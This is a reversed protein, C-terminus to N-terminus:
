ILESPQSEIWHHDSLPLFIVGKNDEEEVEKIIKRERLEDRQFSSDWKPIAMFGLSNGMVEFNHAAVLVQPSLSKHKYQTLLCRWELSLFGVNDM